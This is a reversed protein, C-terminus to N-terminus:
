QRWECDSCGSGPGLRDLQVVQVSVANSATFGVIEPAKDNNGRRNSWIPHLSVRTTQLQRDELGLAKLAGQMEEMAKSVAAMAQAAERHEHTVGLTITAMDPAADVQGLGSVVIQRPTESAWVAPAIGGALVSALVASMMLKQM